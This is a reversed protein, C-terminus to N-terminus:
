DIVEVSAVVGALDAEVTTAIAALDEELKNLSILTYAFNDEIYSTRAADTLGTPVSLTLEALGDAASANTFVVGNKGFGATSGTAIGFIPEKKENTLFLASPQFKAIRKITDFTIASKVVAASGLIKITAM